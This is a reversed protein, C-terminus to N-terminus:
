TIVVAAAAAHNTTAPTATVSRPTEATTITQAGRAFRTQTGNVETEVMTPAGTFTISNGSGTNFCVGVVILAANVATDVSIDWTSPPGDTNDLASDLVTGTRGPCGFVSVEVQTIQETYAVTLTHTDGGAPKAVMWIETHGRQGTNDTKAVLTASVGGYTLTDVDGNNTSDQMAFMIIIPEGEATGTSTIAISEGVNGTNHQASGGHYIPDAVAGSPISVPLSTAITQNTGDDGTVDATVDTGQESATIDFTLGTAGSIDTGDSQWQQTLALTSATTWLGRDLTLTDNLATNGSISPLALNLPAGNLQGATRTYTGAYIGGVVVIDINESDPVIPNIDINAENGATVTVRAKYQSTILTAVFPVPTTGVNDTVTVTFGATDGEALVTSEDVADGQFTVTVDEPRVTGNASIFNSAAIQQAYNVVDGVTQGEFLPSMAPTIIATIAQSVIGGGGVPSLTLSMGMM